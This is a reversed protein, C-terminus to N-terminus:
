THRPPYSIAVINTKPLLQMLYQFLGNAHYVRVVCPICQGLRVIPSWRFVERVVAMTYPLRDKDSIQPLCDTSGLVGDIEAQAKAQVEPYLAM